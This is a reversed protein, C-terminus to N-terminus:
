DKLGLRRKAEDPDIRFFIKPPARVILSYEEVDFIAFYDGSFVILKHIISMDEDRLRRIGKNILAKGLKTHFCSNLSYM